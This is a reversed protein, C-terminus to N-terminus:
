RKGNFLLLKVLSDAPTERIVRKPQELKPCIKTEKLRLVDTAMLWFLM